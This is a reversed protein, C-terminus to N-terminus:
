ATAFKRKRVARDQDLIYKPKVISVKCGVQSIVMVKNTEYDVHSVLYSIHSTDVVYLHGVKEATFSGALKVLSTALATYSAGKVVNRHEDDTKLEIKCKLKRRGSGVFGTIKCEVLDNETKYAYRCLHSNELCLAMTVESLFISKHTGQNRIVFEEKHLYLKWNYNTKDGNLVYV